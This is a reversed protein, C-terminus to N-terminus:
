YLHSHNEMKSSALTELVTAMTESSKWKTPSWKTWQVWRSQTLLTGLSVSHADYSGLVLLRDNGPMSVGQSGYKVGGMQLTLVRRGAYNGVICM